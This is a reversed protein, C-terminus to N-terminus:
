LDRGAIVPLSARTASTLVDIAPVASGTSSRGGAVIMVETRSFPSRTSTWANGVVVARDCFDVILPWGASTIALPEPTTSQFSVRSVGTSGALKDRCGGIFGAVGFVLGGMM